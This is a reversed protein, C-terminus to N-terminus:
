NLKVAYTFIKLGKVGNKLAIKESKGKGKKELQIKIKGGAGELTNQMIHIGPGQDVGDLHNGLQFRRLSEIDQANSYEFDINTM